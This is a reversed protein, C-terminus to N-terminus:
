ILALLLRFNLLIKTQSRKLIHEFVTLFPLLFYKKKKIREKAFCFSVCLAKFFIISVKRTVIQKSVYRFCLESLMQQYNVHVFSFEVCGETKASLKAQRPM